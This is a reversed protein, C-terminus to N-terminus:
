GLNGPGAAVQAARHVDGAPAGASKSTRSTSSPLWRCPRGRAVIPLRQGRADPRQMTDFPAAPAAGYLSSAACQSQTSNKFASSASKGPRHAASSARVVSASMIKNPRVRSLLPATLGGVVQGRPEARVQLSRPLASEGRSNSRPSSASGWATGGRWRPPATQHAGQWVLLTSNFMCNQCFVEAM